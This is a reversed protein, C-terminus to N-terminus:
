EADEIEQISDREDTDTHENEPGDNADDKDSYPRFGGLRTILKKIARNHRMRAADDSSLTLEAAIDAYTMSNAYKHYLINRDEDNLKIYAAKVEAMMAMMNGGEAPAPPKGPMGLNLKPAEAGDGRLIAPLLAEIIDPEYFYLDSPEYGLSKAKWLQCYDLAQNRLSRYFLNQASKKGLGNWEATKRPHELFWQYLSQRIDEREVMQYRKHYEDAVHLVIYDWPEITEWNM